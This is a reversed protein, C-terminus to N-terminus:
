ADHCGGGSGTSGRRLLGYALISVGAPISTMMLVLMLM